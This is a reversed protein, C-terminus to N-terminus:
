PLVSFLPDENLSNADCNCNTQWTSFNTVPGPSKQGIKVQTADDWYLNYDITLVANTPDDSKICVSRCKSAINNQVIAVGEKLYIPEYADYCSNYYFENAFATTAGTAHYSHRLCRSGIGYMVNNVVKTGACAAEIFIATASHDIGAANSFGVKGADLNYIQNAAIINGSNMGGGVDCWVGAVTAFGQSTLPCSLYSTFDHIYNKRITLTTNAYTYHIGVTNAPGGSGERGCRLASIDNQTILTGQTSTIKIAILDINSFRNGQIVSGIAYYNAGCGFATQCGSVSLVNPGNTQAATQRWNRFVNNLVQIGTINQTDGQIKLAYLSPVTPCGSGDFVLNRFTWYSSNKVQIAAEAAGANCNRLIFNAGVDPQLSIPGNKGNTFFFGEYIGTGTRIAITDGPAVNNFANTITCYPTGTAGTGPCSVGAGNDVYLTAAQASGVLLWLVLTYRSFEIM